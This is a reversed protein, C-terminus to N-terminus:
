FCTVHVNYDVKVADAVLAKHVHASHHRYIADIM